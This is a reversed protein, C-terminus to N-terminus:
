RLATPCLAAGSHYKCPTPPLAPVNSLASLFLPLSIMWCHSWPFAWAPSSQLSPTLPLLNWPIINKLLSSDSVYIRDPFGPSSNAHSLGLSHWGPTHSTTWHEPPLQSPKLCSHEPLHFSALTLFHNSADLSINGHYFHILCSLPPPPIYTSVSSSALHTPSQSFVPSSGLTHVGSGVPIRLQFLCPLALSM